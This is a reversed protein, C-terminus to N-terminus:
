NRDPMSKVAMAIETDQDMEMKICKKIMREVLSSRKRDEIKMRDKLYDDLDESLYITRMIKNTM